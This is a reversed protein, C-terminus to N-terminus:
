RNDRSQHPFIPQGNRSDNDRAQDISGTKVNDVQRSTQVAAQGKSAGQYYDGEALAVGTFSASAIMAAALTSLITKM